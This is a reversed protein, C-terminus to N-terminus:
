QKVFKTAAVAGGISTKVVYTGSTLFADIHINNVGNLVPNSSSTVVTRGTIDVIEITANGTQKSTIRLNMGSEVQYAIVNLSSADVNQIGTLCAPDGPAAINVAVSNGTYTCAPDLTLNIISASTGTANGFVVPTFYYTGYPLNIGDILTGDNILVTTSSSPAPFAVGSGGIYGPDLQPNSNGTIDTSSIIWGIGAYDGVTPAYIGTATVSLTEAECLLATSGVATGPNINPDSCTISPISVYKFIGGDTTSTTFGGCWMHTSDVVGLATRQAATEIDVWTAGGNDSYSSGIFGTAAGTSVLRSTTGPVWKVDSGWFNGTITLTSWTAGSDSTTKVTNVGANYLRAIGNSPSYFAIDIAGITTPVTIGTTGVAWTLGRDHSRYVRGKNTDFWVNDGIVNYHGVIGYEGSLQAPINAQPVRTWTDGGDYTKYIEFYGNNPDGMAFGESGNWFHVVNPFSNADYISGTGVQTWSAGGDATRYVAGGSGAVADYFMAFASDANIGHIMSWDYTTPAPTVGATWNAGGDVTRSFDQRDAGGGSGDYSCIWLVNTDVPSVYRVGSSVPTFGTAQSVWAGGQAIAGTAFLLFAAFLLQKKM